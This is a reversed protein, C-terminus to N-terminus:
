PASNPSEQSRAAAARRRLLYLWLIMVLAELSMVGVLYVPYHWQWPDGSLEGLGIALSGVTSAAILCALAAWATRSFGSWRLLACPSSVFLGVGATLLIGDEPLDLVAIFWLPPWSLAVAGFGIWGGVSQRDGGPFM